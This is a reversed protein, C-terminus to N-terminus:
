TYNILTPLARSGLQVDVGITLNIYRVEISPVDLGVLQNSVIVFPLSLSFGQSRIANEMCLEITTVIANSDVNFVRVFNDLSPSAALSGLPHAAVSTIGLSHGTNTRNLLLDDSHWLKVTEDLFGTLLLPPRNSTGM